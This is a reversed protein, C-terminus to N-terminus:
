QSHSKQKIDGILETFFDHINKQQELVLDLYWSYSNDRCEQIVDSTFFIKFEKGILDEIEKEFDKYGDFENWWSFLFGTIEKKLNAHVFKDAFIWPKEKFVNYIQEKFNSTGQDWKPWNKAEWLYCKQDKEFLGDLITRKHKRQKEALNTKFEDLDIHEVNPIHVDNWFVMPKGEVFDYGEKIMLWKAVIGEYFKGLLTARISDLDNQIISDNSKRSKKGTLIIDIVRVM